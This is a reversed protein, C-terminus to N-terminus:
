NSTKRAVAARESELLAILERIPLPRLHDVGTGAWLSMYEPTAKKLSAARIDRTFANQAPYPLIAPVNRMVRMFRNEIGRAWRGSFARTLSTTKTGKATLTKVYPANTGAEPCALFATGMQVAQAGLSLMEDIERGNMIGGAAIVPVNVSKVVAPLLERLKFVGTPPTIAGNEPADFFGRHGGAEEGQVIIADVGDAELAKAEAVTTATGMTLIGAQRCAAIREKGISGFIFSLAAPKTELIIAFQEDFNEHFPPKLEPDKIELEQRYPRTAEIAAKVDGDTMVTPKAPAFLNIAFPKSTSKRTEIIMDRIAAPTSYAGGLSGMAGAECAGAVLAVTTPGGAM